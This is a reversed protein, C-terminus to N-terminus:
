HIPPHNHSELLVLREAKDKRSRMPHHELFLFGTAPAHKRLSASETMCSKSTLMTVQLVHTRSKTSVNSLQTPGDLVLDVSRSREMAGYRPVAILLPKHSIAVQLM